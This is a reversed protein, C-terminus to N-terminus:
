RRELDNLLRRRLGEREKIAELFKKERRYSFREVAVEKDMVKLLMNFEIRTLGERMAKLSLIKEIIARRAVESWNIESYKKMLLYIEKPISLTIHTM